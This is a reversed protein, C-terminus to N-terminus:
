MVMCLGIYAYVIRYLGIAMYLWADVYVVRCLWAYGDMPMCSGIYAYVARCLCLHILLRFRLM